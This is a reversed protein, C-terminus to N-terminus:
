MRQRAIRRGSSAGLYAMAALVVPSFSKATALYRRGSPMMMKETDPIITMPTAVGFSAAASPAILESASAAAYPFSLQVRSFFDSNSETFIVAMVNAIM